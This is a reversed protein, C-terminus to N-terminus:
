GLNLKLWETTLITGRWKYAIEPGGIEREEKDDSWVLVLLKM